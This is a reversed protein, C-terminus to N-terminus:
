IECAGGTCVLEPQVTTNDENEFDALREWDVSKPFTEMAEEYKEKTIEEYPPLMATYSHESYPLFSVGSMEDFHEYVWGGLKLFEEDKYYITISPKHECWHDNYTKWLEIQEIAGMGNRTISKRPSEMPFSIVVNHPNTPDQEVPVGQAQLFASLPDNRTTRVRRLYYPAYRTHIGSATDTLQSVTGSPKVCTTCVSPNIKLVKAVRQNEQLVAAKMEYLLLSLPVGLVDRRGSLVPHDMIGTLSVGLLREEECNKQWTSRLFRFDTLTSQLTGLFSAIRAKRLLDERQDTPRVVIESLNCLEDPRLVIESCPNTGFEWNEDRRHAGYYKAQCAYRSFIGREGAKSQFLSVWERLFSDFDPKSTYAVSNNSLARYPSSLHWDGDKCHRIRDDSLNSLSLLASRRVGGVVVIDAIKCVIDHVELTTLQRGAAAKFKSVTFQFLEELPEPGSARGGFTKLRSGAPRIKSVDWKPVRGGYLLSLLERYGSAWGLKSDRIAIVTDTEHLSEPITPLKDVYNREVSFGVGTGCLLIYMIESFKSVHDIPTYSCNYGAIHDRELAKGATMLVRMSPMVEMNHVATFAEAIDRHLAPPTRSLWFDESREVTELWAERRGLDDRYRAYRSKHIYSQFFNM